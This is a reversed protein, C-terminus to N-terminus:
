LAVEGAISKCQGCIFFLLAPDNPCYDLTIGPALHTQLSAFLEMSHNPYGPCEPNRCHPSAGSDFRHAGGIQSYDEGLSALAERDEARLFSEDIVASVFSVARYQEYSFPVLSAHERPLPGRMMPEASSENPSHLTIAYETVSYAIFGEATDMVLPLTEFEVRQARFFDLAPDRLDLSAIHVFRGDPPVGPLECM